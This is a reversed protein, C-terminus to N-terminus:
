FKYIINRKKLLTCEINYKSSTQWDGLIAIQNSSFKENTNLIHNIVDRFIDKNMIVTATLSIRKGNKTNRKIVYTISSNSKNFRITNGLVLKIGSFGEFYKNYFLTRCDVIIDSITRDSM